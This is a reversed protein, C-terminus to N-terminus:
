FSNIAVGAGFSISFGTIRVTQNVSSHFPFQGPNTVATTVSSDTRANNGIAIASGSGVTYKLPYANSSRSIAQVSTRGASNGSGSASVSVTTSPGAGTVADLANNDLTLLEDASAVPVFGILLCSSLITAEVLGKNLM